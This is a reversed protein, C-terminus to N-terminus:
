APAVRKKPKKPRAAKCKFCQSKSDWNSAFGCSECTWDQSKDRAGTSADRARASSASTGRSTARGGAKGGGGRTPAQKPSMAALAAKAQQVAEFSSLLKGPPSPRQLRTRAAYRELQRNAPRM